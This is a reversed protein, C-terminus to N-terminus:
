LTEASSEACSAEQFPLRYKAVLDFLAETSDQGEYSRRQKLLGKLDRGFSAAVERTQRAHVDIKPHLEAARVTAEHQLLSHDDSPLYDCFVVLVWREGSSIPHSQHWVGRELVCLDGTQLPYFYREARPDWVSIGGGEFGPGHLQLILSGCVHHGDIHKRLHTEGAVPRYRTVFSQLRRLGRDAFEPRQEALWRRLAETVDELVPALADRLPPHLRAATYAPDDVEAWCSINWSEDLYTMDCPAFAAAVDPALARLRSGDVAAELVAHRSAPRQTLAADAM